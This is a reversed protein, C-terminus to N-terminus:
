VFVLFREILDTTSEVYHRWDKLKCILNQFFYIKAFLYVITRVQVKVSGVIAWGMRLRWKGMLAFYVSQEVQGMTHFFFWDFIHFSFAHAQTFPFFMLQVFPFIWGIIFTKKAEWWQWWMQCMFCTWGAYVLFVFQLESNLDRAPFVHCFVPIYMRRQPNRETRHVGIPM